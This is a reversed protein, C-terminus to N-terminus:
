PVAFLWLPDLVYPIVIIVGTAVEELANGRGELYNKVDKSRHLRNPYSGTAIGGSPTFMSKAILEDVGPRTKRAEAMFDKFDDKVSYVFKTDDSDPVFGTPTGDLVLTGAYVAKRGEPVSLTIDTVFRYGDMHVAVLSYQGPRLYVGFDGSKNCRVEYTEDGGASSLYAYGSSDPAPMPTKNIYEIVQIRGLVAAEGEEPSPPEAPTSSAPAEGPATAAKEDSPKEGLSSEAKARQIHDMHAPGSAEPGSVTGVERTSTACGALAIVAALALLYRLSKM